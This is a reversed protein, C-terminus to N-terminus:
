NDLINRYNYGIPFDVVYILDGKFEIQFWNLRNETRVYM